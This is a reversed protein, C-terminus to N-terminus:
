ILEVVLIIEYYQINDAEPTLCPLGFEKGETGSAIIVPIFNVDLLKDNQDYFGAWINVIEEVTGTNNIKGHIEYKPEFPNTLGTLNGHHSELIIKIQTPPQDTSSKAGKVEINYDSVTPALSLFYWYSLGTEGAPLENGSWFVTKEARVTTDDPGGILTIFIEINSIKYSKTNKFELVVYISEDLSYMNSDTVKLKASYRSNKPYDDEDNPIGDDDLDNDTEEQQLLGSLQVAVVAILIIVLAIVVYVISKKSSGPTNKSKKNSSAKQEQKKKIRYGCYSCFKLWDSVERGCHGCTRM